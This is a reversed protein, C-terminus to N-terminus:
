FYIANIGRHFQLISHTAVQMPPCLKIVFILMLVIFAVDPEILLLPIDKLLKLCASKKSENYTGRELEHLVAKSTCVDVNVRETDWWLQTWNRRAVAEPNSRTEFYFSPISTEIYVKPRM